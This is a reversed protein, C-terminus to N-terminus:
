EKTYGLEREGYGGRVEVFAVAMAGNVSSRNMRVKLQAFFKMSGDTKADCRWPVMECFAPRGSRTTKYTERERMRKGMSVKGDVARQLLDRRERVGEDPGVEQVGVVRAEPFRQVEGGRAQKGAGVAIIIAVVIRM